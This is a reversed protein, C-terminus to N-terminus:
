KVTRGRKRRKLAERYVDMTQRATREWSFLAARELGASSLRRREGDDRLLEIIASALAHEDTPPVLRAATAVTEVITPINSTIVPAGCAMAELPPLGFGEYLSPYVCVRCSSYLAALDEEPLYGTLLLRDKIGAREILSHLADTLWGERGAIVLQPRLPTHRLIEEFARVLTLLNKRPEITGVFLIFRDEVGLRRRVDITQELPIPRFNRRPAYPTVAIKEAPARLHECIERKVSETATIIMIASRAIFPLRRRARRALREEHKDAHLLLSLDHITVV